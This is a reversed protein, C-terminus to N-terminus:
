GSSTSPAAVTAGDPDRHERLVPLAAAVIIAAGLFWPAGPVGHAIGIAFATTYLLPGILAAFGRISGIAGQLEGQERPSVRRTMMAQGAAPALGWLCLPLIGVFFLWTWPALGCIVLSLVGFAIGAFLSVREGFRKVFPGILFM